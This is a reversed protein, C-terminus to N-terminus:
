QKMGARYLVHMVTRDSQRVLVELGYEKGNRVMPIFYRFVGAVGRPDPSRAGHAIAMKIIQVPVFRGPDRMHELVTRTFLLPM